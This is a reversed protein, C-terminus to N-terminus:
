NWEAKKFEVRKLLQIQLFTFGILLSGMVWAMSTAMSFRLNNYAEIWIRMGLVTTAEGPGGFTLLFINGMNQFTGIFAGVFNIIILPMLTPMTIKRLKTFVGAGDVDAAEYIEEPVGKLAALYILSAMGMSAWVTPIVCCIMALRPDQLWTQSPIEVFPLKNLWGLMQNLFGQPTPEYMLKWLLAIVLGSTVNPLFFLTRYLYKGRPIEALLLAIAIPACFALAMNLLVFVFTRGLAAWFSGDLAMSIFNDLGVFASTGAIRYDQFAMVLGRLLPYYSWLGILLLAPIMFVWPLWPRNVSRTSAVPGRRIFSRVIFVMCLAMFGAMVAFVVRALPRHRDLEERSRGFMLGTNADNEVKRLAAAYDFDRGTEAIVLSLIQQSISGDMTVWFGVYPETYISIGGNDIREFNRRIQEPVEQLYDLLNLRRLDNPNIFRALGSIAQQRVISDAVSKDTVATLAKWVQDREAK